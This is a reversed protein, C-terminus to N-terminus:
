GCSMWIVVVDVLGGVFEDIRVAGDPTAIETEGGICGRGGIAVKIPKHRTAFPELKHNVKIDLM